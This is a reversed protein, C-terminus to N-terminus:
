PSESIAPLSIDTDLEDITRIPGKFTKRAWGFYWVTVAIITGFTILPAYNVSNWSFSSEWPVGEPTLPLCFAIV